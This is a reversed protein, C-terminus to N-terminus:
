WSASASTSISSGATRTSSRAHASRAPRRTSSPSATPRGASRLGAAHGPDQQRHGREGDLRVRRGGPLRVARRVRPHRPRRGRQRLRTAAHERRRRSARAHGPRLDAAQRRVVRLDSRVPPRRGPVGLRLVEGPAGGSRRHRARAGLGGHGRELPVAADRRLARRRRHARLARRPVARPLDGERPHDAGGQSPREHGLHLDAHLPLRRHTRRGASAAPVLLDRWDAGDTDIVQIGALDLGDLLHRQTADTLLLQVDARHLDAVLADGRRTSNVGVAVHGGLGAAALGLLMEPTNDM